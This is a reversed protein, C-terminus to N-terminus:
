AMGPEPVSRGAPTDGGGAQFILVGNIGQRKMEELDKTIGQKSVNGNLWWWYAWPKVSDPPSHFGTALNGAQGSGAALFCGSALLFVSFLFLARKLTGGWIIRRCTLTTLGPAEPPRLPNGSERSHRSESLQRICTMGAFSTGAFAPLPFGSRGDTLAEDRSQRSGAFFDRPLDGPSQRPPLLLKVIGTDELGGDVRCSGEGWSGEGRKGRGPSLSSPFPHYPSLHLEASKVIKCVGAGISPPPRVAM